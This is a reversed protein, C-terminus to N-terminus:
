GKIHAPVSNTPGMFDDCWMANTPGLNVLNKGSSQDKVALFQELTKFGQSLTMMM